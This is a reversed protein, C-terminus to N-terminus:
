YFVCIPGLVSQSPGPTRRILPLPIKLGWILVWNVFIKWFGRHGSKPHFGKRIKRHLEATGVGKTPPSFERFYGRPFGELEEGELEKEGLNAAGNKVRWHPGM